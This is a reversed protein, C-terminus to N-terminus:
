ELVIVRHQPKLKGTKLRVYMDAAVNHFPTAHLRAIKMQCAYGIVKTDDCPMLSGSFSSVPCVHSLLVMVGPVGKM